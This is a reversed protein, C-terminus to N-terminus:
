IIAAAVKFLIYKDFDIISKTAASDSLLFLNILCEMLSLNIILLQQVSKEGREKRHLTALLYFGLAHFLFKFSGFVTITKQIIHLSYSFHDSSSNLGIRSIGSITTVMCNWPGNGLEKEIFLVRELSTCNYSKCHLLIHEMDISTRNLRQKAAEVVSEINM